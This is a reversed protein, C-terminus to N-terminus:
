LTTRQERVTQSGDSHTTTAVNRRSRNLTMVGFILVVFGAGAIIWGALALDIGSISDQIALAMILGLAMLFGGFGLSSM